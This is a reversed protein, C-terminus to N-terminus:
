KFLLALQLRKRQESYTHASHTQTSHTHMQHLLTQEAEAVGCTQKRYNLRSRLACILVCVNIETVFLVIAILRDKSDQDM